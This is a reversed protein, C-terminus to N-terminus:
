RYRNSAKVASELRRECYSPLGRGWPVRVSTKSRAM